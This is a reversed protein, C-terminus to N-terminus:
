KITDELPTNPETKGARQRSISTMIGMNPDGSAIASFSNTHRPIDTIKMISYKNMSINSNKKIADKFLRSRDSPDRCIQQILLDFVSYPAEIHVGNVRLTEIWYDTIKDYGIESPFFGSLLMDLLASVNDSDQVVTTNKIFISDFDFILEIYSEKKNIDTDSNYESSDLTIKSIMKPCLRIKTPITFLFESADKLLYKEYPKDWSLFKFVGFTEVEENIMVTINKHLYSSPILIKGYVGKYILSDDIHKFLLDFDNNNEM